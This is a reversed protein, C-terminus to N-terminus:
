IYKGSTRRFNFKNLKYTKSQANKFHNRFIINKKELVGTFVWFLHHTCNSCFYALPETNYLVNNTFTDVAFLYDHFNM